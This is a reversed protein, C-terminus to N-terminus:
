LALPPRGAPRRTRALPPPLGARLHLTVAGQAVVAYVREAAIEWTGAVRPCREVSGDRGGLVVWQPDVAEVFDPTVAAPSGRLPAIVVAAALELEGRQARRALGAAEQADILEPILVTPSTLVASGTKFGIRLM